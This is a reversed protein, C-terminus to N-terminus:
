VCSDQPEKSPLLSFCIRTLSMNEVDPSLAFGRGTTCYTYCRRMSGHLLLCVVVNWLHTMIGKYQVTDLAFIPALWFYIQFNVFISVLWAYTATKCSNTVSACSICLFIPVLVKDGRLTPGVWFPM